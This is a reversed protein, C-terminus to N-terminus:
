IERNSSVTLKTGSVKQDSITLIELIKEFVSKKMERFDLTKQLPKPTNKQNNKKSILYSGEFNMMQDRSENPVMLFSIQTLELNQWLPPPSSSSMTQMKKATRAMECLESNIPPFM